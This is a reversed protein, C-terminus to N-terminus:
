SPEDVPVDALLAARAATWATDCSELLAARTSESLELSFRITEPAELRLGTFRGELRHGELLQWKVLLAPHFLLFRPRLWLGTESVALQMTGPFSYDNLKASQFHLRNSPSRGSYRYSASLERWGNSRAAVFGMYISTSVLTLVIVTAILALLINLVSEIRLRWDNATFVSNALSTSGPM